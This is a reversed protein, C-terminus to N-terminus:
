SSVSTPLIALVSRIGRLWGTIRRSWSPMGNADSSPTALGTLDISDPLTVMALDLEGRRLGALSESTSWEVISVEVGPNKITYDSLYRVMQPDTQHWWSTRLVGRTGQGFERMADSLDSLEAM